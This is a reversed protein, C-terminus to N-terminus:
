EIDPVTAHHEKLRDFVRDLSSKLKDIAGSVAQEVTDAHYTVAIPAKGEVRAELTCRKDNIGEKSGNEDALHVEIRTLHDRFRGLEVAIQDSLPGTFHENGTINHDTNFQITM